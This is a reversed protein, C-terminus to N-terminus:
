GRPDTETAWLLPMSTVALDASWLLWLFLLVALPSLIQGTLSAFPILRSWEWLGAAMVFALLLAFGKTPLYFLGGVVIVVMIAASILRTRLM